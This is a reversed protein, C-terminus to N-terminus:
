LAHLMPFLSFGIASRPPMGGPIVCCPVKDRQCRAALEGGSTIAIMAAASSKAADYASLTEATNGSYSSAVFLAGRAVNKPLLYDRCSVIPAAANEGLFSKALDGGIASGGMGAVIVREFKASSRALTRAFEAGIQWAAEMQDPFAIVRGMMDSADLRNRLEQLSM